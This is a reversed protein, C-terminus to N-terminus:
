KCCPANHCNTMALAAGLRSLINILSIQHIILRLENGGKAARAIFHLENKEEGKSVAIYKCDNL